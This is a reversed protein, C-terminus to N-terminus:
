PADDVLYAQFNDDLGPGLKLKTLKAGKLHKPLRTLQGPKLWSKDITDIRAFDLLIAGPEQDVLVLGRRGFGEEVEHFLLPQAM